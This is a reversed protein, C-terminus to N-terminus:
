VHARGIQLGGPGSGVVVARGPSAGAGADSPADRVTARGVNSNLSCRVPTSSFVRDFCHGCAMCPVIESERGEAAKSPWDPDVVLARAVNVFDAGSQERVRIAERPTRVRGGFLLPVRVSGRVGRALFAFAGSPVHSTLQPLTTRHGGGTVNIGDIGAGELARAIRRAGDNGYGRELFEHGHIRALVPYDAGVAARVAALAELPARLREDWQGSYGPIEWTNHEPSLFHSLLSGGSLMLEVFDLGARAVRAAAEGFSEIIREIDAPAPVHRPSNYSGLPSLQAGIKAGRRQAREALEAFRDICEDRGFGLAGALRADPEEITNCVGVTIMGVGGRALREYFGITRAEPCGDEAYGLHYAPFAIRNRVEMPGIRGATFLLSDRM